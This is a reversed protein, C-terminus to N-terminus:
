ANKKEVVTITYNEEWLTSPPRSWPLLELRAVTLTPWALLGSKDSVDHALPFLSYVTLILILIQMWIVLDLPWRVSDASHGGLFQETWLKWSIETSLRMVWAHNTNSKSNSAFPMWIHHSILDWYRTIFTYGYVVPCIFFGIFIFTYMYLKVPNETISPGGDVALDM